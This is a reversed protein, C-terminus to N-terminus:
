KKTEKGTKNGTTKLKETIANLEKINDILPGLIKGFAGEVSQMEAGLDKINQGYEQVRGLLAAQLRDLSLEIRKVREDISKVRSEAYSKWEVVDVIKSKIEQWKENVIEEAIEEIIETEIKPPAAAEYPYPYPYATEPAPVPVEPAPAVAQAPAAEETMISPALETTPASAVTQKIKAQNLADSIQMPTYGQEVLKRIIEADNMGRQQMKLVDDLLPM